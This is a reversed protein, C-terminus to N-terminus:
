YTLSSMATQHNHACSRLSFKSYSTKGNCLQLASASGQKVFANLINIAVDLRLKLVGAEIGEKLIRVPWESRRETGSGTSSLAPVRTKRPARLFQGQRPRALANSFNREFPRIDRKNIRFGLPPRWLRMVNDEDPPFIRYQRSANFLDSRSTGQQEAAGACKSKTSAWIKAGWM